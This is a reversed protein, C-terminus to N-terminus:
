VRNHRYYSVLVVVHPVFILTGEADPTYKELKSNIISFIMTPCILRHNKYSSNLTEAMGYIVSSTGPPAHLFIM